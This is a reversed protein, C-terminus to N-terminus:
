CGGPWAPERSAIGLVAAGVIAGRMSDGTWRPGRVLAWRARTPVNSSILVGGGGARRLWGGIDLSRRVSSSQEESPDPRVVSGFPWGLLQSKAFYAEKIVVRRVNRGGLGLGGFQYALPLHGMSCGAPYILTKGAGHFPKAPANACNGEFIVIRYGRIM